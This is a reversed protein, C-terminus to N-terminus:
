SSVQTLGVPEATEEARERKRRHPMARIESRRWWLPRFSAYASLSGRSPLCLSPVRLRARKSRIPSPRCDTGRGETTRDLVAWLPWAFDVHRPNQGPEPAHVVDRQELTPLGCTRYLHPSGVRKQPM